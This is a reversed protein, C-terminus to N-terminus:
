RVANRASDLSVRRLDARNLGLDALERNSLASLGDFTERYLRRTKIERALTDVASTLRAWIGNTSATSTTVYAMIAGKPKDKTESSGYRPAKAPAVVSTTAFGIHLKQMYGRDALANSYNHFHSHSQQRAPLVIPQFPFLAAVDPLLLIDGGIVSRKPLLIFRDPRKSSLVKAREIGEYKTNKQMQVISKNAISGHLMFM